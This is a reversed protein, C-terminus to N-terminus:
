TSITWYYYVSWIDSLFRCYGLPTSYWVGAFYIVAFALTKKKTTKQRTRDMWEGRAYDSLLRTALSKGVVSNTQCRWVLGSALSFHRSIVQKQLPNQTLFNTCLSFQFMFDTNSSHRHLLWSNRVITKCSFYLSAILSQDLFCQCPTIMLKTHTM